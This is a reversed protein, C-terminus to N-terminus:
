GREQEGALMAAENAKLSLVSNYISADQSLEAAAQKVALDVTQAQVAPDSNSLSALAAGPHAFRSDAGAQKTNMEINRLHGAITFLDEAEKETAPQIGYSALKGFFVQSHVDSFLHNYASVPDPLSDTQNTSM